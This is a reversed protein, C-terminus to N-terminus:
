ASKAGSRRWWFWGGFVVASVGMLGWMVQAYQMALQQLKDFNAGVMSGVAVILLNWLLSSLTAYLMVRGLRLGSFGAAYFFLARVGPLFRNLVIYAEGHVKLKEALKELNGALKKGQDARQHAKKRAWVGLQFDLTAGLLGGLTLAAMMWWFSWHYATILVAGFLTVTDGPFPPFLYEIMSSLFLFFLGLPHNPSQALTTLYSLM